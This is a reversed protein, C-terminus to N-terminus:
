KWLVLQGKRQIKDNSFAAVIGKQPHHVLGSIEAQTGDKLKSTTEEAFGRISKELKGAVVDFICCVGAETVCYLWHNSPSITAAVFVKGGASTDDEFARIVTGHHSVLFARLGRPVIVMTDAPTHLQLVTHIAPCGGAASTQDSRHDVILSSGVTSLSDGLSVPRLVRIVVSTKANWIRVTGDAASTVVVLQHKGEKRLSYQCSHVFSSHGNFEKLMRTTRLGFERCNSDESGTLIHSGDPAFALCSIASGRDHASIRRLCKGTSIRWVKVEGDSGGTALMTGDNSAALALVSADDHGMLEGNEQYSLDMRLTAYKDHADYIEVLGDSSGTVLSFSTTSASIASGDECVVPVFLASEATTKKGFKITTYQKSPIPDLPVSDELPPEGVNVADVEVAGLVLDFLKRKKRRRKETTNKTNQGDPVLGEDDDWLEKISPLLGTYAQWKIAQQIVSKLRCPPVVPISDMLRKGINDRREQKSFKSGYYNPPFKSSDQSSPDAADVQMSRLSVLAALRQELDRKRSLVHENTKESKGTGAEAALADFEDEVVRLSAYALRIDGAEALELIAMEHVDSILVEMENKLGSATKRRQLLSNDLVSFAELIKGWQGTSAWAKLNAHVARTCGAMGIGSEDRLARCSEQLGCETLHAAILRLIDSAEM